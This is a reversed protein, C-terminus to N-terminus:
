PLEQAPARAQQSVAQLEYKRLLFRPRLHQKFGRLGPDGLDEQINMLRCGRTALASAVVHLLFTYIGSYRTDAKWFHGV